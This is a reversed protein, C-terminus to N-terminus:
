VLTEVCFRVDKNLDTHYNDGKGITLVGWIVCKWMAGNLSRNIESSYTFKFTSLKIIFMVFLEKKEKQTSM